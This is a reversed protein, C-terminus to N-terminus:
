NGQVQRDDGWDPQTCRTGPKDTLQEPGHLEIEDDIEIELIQAQPPDPAVLNIVRQLLGPQREPQRPESRLQAPQKQKPAKSEIKQSRAELEPKQPLQEAKGIPQPDSKKQARRELEAYARSISVELAKSEESDPKIAIGNQMAEIATYIQNDTLQSLKSM